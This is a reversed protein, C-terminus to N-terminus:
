GHCQGSPLIDPTPLLIIIDGAWGCGLLDGQWTGPLQCHLDNWPWSSNLQMHFSSKSIPLNAQIIPLPLCTYPFGYLPSSLAAPKSHLPLATPCPVRPAHLRQACSSASAASFPICAQPRKPQLGSVGVASTHGWGRVQVLHRHKNLTHPVKNCPGLPVIYYMRSPSGAHHYTNPSLHSYTLIVWFARFFIIHSPQRDRCVNSAM